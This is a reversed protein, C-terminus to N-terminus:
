RKLYPLIKFSDTAPLQRPSERAKLKLLYIGFVKPSILM